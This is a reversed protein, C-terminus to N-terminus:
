INFPEKGFVDGLHWIAVEKMLGLLEGDEFAASLKDHAYGSLFDMVTFRKEWVQKAGGNGFHIPIECVQLYEKFVDLNSQLSQPIQDEFEDFLRNCAALISFVSIRNDMNIIEVFHTPKQTIVVRFLHNNLYQNVLMYMDPHVLSYRAAIGKVSAPGELRKEEFRVLSTLQRTEFEFIEPNERRYKELDDVFIGQRLPFDAYRRNYFLQLYIPYCGFENPQLREQLLFDVRVKKRKAM